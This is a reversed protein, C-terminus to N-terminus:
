LRDWLYQLITIIKEVVPSNRYRTLIVFGSILVFVLGGIFWILNGGSSNNDIVDFSRIDSTDSSYTEDGIWSAEVTWTGNMIPTFLYSYAGDFDVVLSKTHLPINDRNFLIQITANEISIPSLSGSVLISEGFYISTYNVSCTISSPAKVYFGLPSSKDGVNTLDGLWSAEVSVSGTFNTSYTFNYRSAIDTRVTKIFSNNNSAVLLSVITTQNLKPTIEGFILNNDGYNVIKNNIECTISSPIKVHFEKRDTTDGINTSDGVWSVSYSWTGSKIPVYSYSFEGDIDIPVTKTSISTNGREFSIEVRSSNMPVPSIAGIVTITDGLLTSPIDSGTIISYPIFSPLFDQNTLSNEIIQYPIDGINDGRLGLIDQNNGIYIDEGDYNNWYNGGHPYSSNWTNTSFSSKTQKTNNNFNNNYVNNDLSNSFRLGLENDKLDNRYIDNWSTSDFDLGYFNNLITNRYIKNYYSTTLKIGSNTNNNIINSDINNNLSNQIIVGNRNENIINNSIKNYASESTVQIGKNNNTITNENLMNDNANKLTIGSNTNNNVTNDTIKNENSNLLKLGNTNNSFINSTIIINNSGRLDVGNISCYILKNSSLLIYSSKIVSIGTNYGSIHMNRVTINNRNKIDLGISGNNGFLSFGKDWGGDIIINDEMVVINDRINSTFTYVNGNKEIDSTGEVGNDQIYISELELEQGEVQVFPYSSAFLLFCFFVVPIKNKM